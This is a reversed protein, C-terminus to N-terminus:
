GGPWRGGPEQLNGAESPADAERTAGWAAGMRGGHMPFAALGRESRSGWPTHEGSAPLGMRGAGRM